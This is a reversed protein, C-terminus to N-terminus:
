SVAQTVDATVTLTGQAVTHVTAPNTTTDTVQVDYALLTDYAPLTATTAAPITITLVGDTTANGNTTITVGSALTLHIFASADADSIDRKATFVIEAYAALGGSPLNTVTVTLTNTDGRLLTVDAQLASM